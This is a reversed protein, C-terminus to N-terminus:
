ADMSYITYGILWIDLYPPGGNPYLWGIIAPPPPPLVVVVIYYLGALEREERYALPGM